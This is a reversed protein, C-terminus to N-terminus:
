HMMEAAAASVKKTCGILAVIWGVLEVLICPNGVVSCFKLVKKSALLGSAVLSPLDRAM